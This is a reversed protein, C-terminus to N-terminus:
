GEYVYRESSSCGPEVAGVEFGGPSGRWLTFGKICVTMTDWSEVSMRLFGGTEEIVLELFGEWRMVDMRFDSRWRGQAPYLNKPDLRVTVGKDAFAQVIAKALRQRLKGVHNARRKM